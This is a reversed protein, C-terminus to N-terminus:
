AEPHPQEFCQRALAILAYAESEYLGHHEAFCALTLHNNVWDLYIAALKERTM